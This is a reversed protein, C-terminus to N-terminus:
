SENVANINQKLKELEKKTNEHGEREKELLAQVTELENQTINLKSKLSGVVASAAEIIGASSKQNENNIGIFEKESPTLISTDEFTDKKDLEDKANYLRSNAEELEKEVEVQQKRINHLTSQEQTIQEKLEEYKKTFEELEEKIKSHKEETVKFKNISESDKILETKKNKEKTEKYERKIIDLEMNKQNLEKKVLMLNGVTSDYEEKVSSIKQTIKDLEQQKERFEKQLNEVESELETKLIVEESTDEIEEVKKKGFFGM